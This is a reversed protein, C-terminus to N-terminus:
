RQSEKGRGELDSSPASRAAGGGEGCGIAGHGHLSATRSRRGALEWVRAAATLRGSRMSMTSSPGAEAAGVRGEGRRGGRCVDDHGAHVAAASAAPRARTATATGCRRRERRHLRIPRRRVGRLGLGGRLTKVLDCPDALLQTFIKM